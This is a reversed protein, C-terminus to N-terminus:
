FGNNMTRIVGDSELQKRLAERRVVVGIGIKYLGIETKVRDMPNVSGDGSLIVYQFYRKTRYFEDFYSRSREVEESKVLPGVFRGGSCNYGRFLIADVANVKSKGIVSSVNRGYSFVKVVSLGDEGTGMCVLEYNIDPKLPTCQTFSLSLLLFFLLRLSLAM